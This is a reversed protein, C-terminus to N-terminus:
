KISQIITFFVTGLVLWLVFNKIMGVKTLGANSRAQEVKKKYEPFLEEVVLVGDVFARISWEKKSLSVDIEVNSGDCAFSLRDKLKFSWRKLLLNGNYFYKECGLMSFDVKFIKGNVDFKSEM